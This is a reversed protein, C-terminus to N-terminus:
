PREAAPGDETAAEATTPAAGGTTTPAGEATTWASTLLDDLADAPMGEDELLGLLLLTRATLTAADEPPGPGEGIAALLIAEARTPDVELGTTDYRERASAVFRILPGRDPEPGFRRRASVLLAGALLDAYRRWEDDAFGRVRRDHRDVRGHALSRLAAEASKM